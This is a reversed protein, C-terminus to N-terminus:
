QGGGTQNQNTELKVPVGMKVLRRFFYKEIDTHDTTRGFSIFLRDNYSSLCMKIKNMESPAPFFEVASVYPEIERPLTVRGLNSVSSTYSREGFWTYVLPMFLNKVFLPLVRIVPHREKRVNRSIQQALYKPTIHLQMYGKLYDVIEVLEYTGLRLDIVPTLSVFFNKMTKSPFLRRLDVPMNMAIRGTMKRKKAGSLSDVYDQIALFYLATIWQTVTCNYEESLRKVEKVPVIGTLFSYKGKDMLPFPFNVAKSPKKPVPVDKQYYRVFADECEQPVPEESLDMVGSLDSVKIGKCQEFYAVLLTKLFLLAGNGDAISHSIELHVYQQYYLVRFPFTKGRKFRLFMCPYHTEPLVVPRHDSEEFYYWFLGRKLNVKYYPLRDITMDLAQQLISPKVEETLKASLRFVTSRRTSAISPYLKGANDLKYWNKEAM